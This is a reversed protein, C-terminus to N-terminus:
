SQTQLISKLFRYLHDFSINTIFVKVEETLLPYRGM